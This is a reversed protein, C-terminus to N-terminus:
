LSGILAGLGILFANKIFRRTRGRPDVVETSMGESSIVTSNGEVDSVELHTVQLTGDVMNKPTMFRFVYENAGNLSEAVIETSFKRPGVLKMKAHMPSGLGVGRDSAKVFLVVEEGSTVKASETRIEHIEPPTRDILVDATGQAVIRGGIHWEWPITNRGETIEVQSPVAQGDVMVEGELIWAMSNVMSSSSENMFAVATRSISGGLRIQSTIGLVALGKVEPVTHEFSGDAMVQVMQGAASVMAGPVTQGRVIFEGNPGPSAWAKLEPASRDIRIHGVKSPVTNRVGLPWVRWTYNGEPVSEVLIMNKRLMQEIGPLTPDTSRLVFRYESVGDVPSWEFLVDNETVVADRVPSQLQIPSQFEGMKPAQGPNLVLTRGAGLKINQGTVTMVETIGDFGLIRVSGKESAFVKVNSNMLMLNGTRTRLTVATGQAAIEIEGIHLVLNISGDQTLDAVEAITFKGLDIMAKGTAIDARGTNATMIWTGNELATAGDLVTWPGNNSGGIRVAGAIRRISAGNGVHPPASAAETIEDGPLVIRSGVKLARPNRIDNLRAIEQWRHASGLERRAIRALTDGKKIKVEKAQSNIGTLSILMGLALLIAINKRM